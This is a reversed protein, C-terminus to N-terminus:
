PKRATIRASFVRPMGSQPNIVTDASVKDVVSIDTFGAERMMSTYVDADIAGTVCDAWKDTQARLEPSFEGETVVDSISVRGGHKLVRFAERFVAPKDPSLNIVCNSIAADISNDAVPLHEIEGLRFEVNNLGTRERYAAINRRAKSLMDPTMDVGIVRGTPGVRPGALFVDFGGGSGLDLVVEGSKLEAIATLNGCSLGMNAGEPLGALDAESYGVQRALGNPNVEQGCCGCGSSAAQGDKQWVGAQAIRAYGERVQERIREGDSQQTM